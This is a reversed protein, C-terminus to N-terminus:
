IEINPFSVKKEAAYRRIDSINKISDSPIGLEVLYDKAQNVNKVNFVDTIDKKEKKIDTNEIESAISYMKDFLSSSEMAKQLSKDSTIFFGGERCSQFTVKVPYKNVNFYLTIDPTTTIYKKTM